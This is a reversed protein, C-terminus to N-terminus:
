TVSSISHSQLCSPAWEGAVRSVVKINKLVLYTGLPSGSTASQLSVLRNNSIIQVRCPHIISQSEACWTSGDSSRRAACSPKRRWPASVCWSSGRWDWPCTWSYGSGSPDLAVGGPGSLNSMICEHKHEARNVWRM